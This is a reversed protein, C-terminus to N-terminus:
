PNRPWGWEWSFSTSELRFRNMTPFTELVSSACDKSSMHTHCSATSNRLYVRHKLSEKRTFTSSFQQSRACTHQTIQRLPNNNSSSSSSSSSYSDAGTLATVTKEPGRPQQSPTPSRKGWKTEWRLRIGRAQQSGTHYQLVNTYRCRPPFRPTGNFFSSTVSQRVEAGGGEGLDRQNGDCVQM